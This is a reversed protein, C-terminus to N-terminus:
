KFYYNFGFNITTSSLLFDIGKETLSSTPKSDKVKSKLFSYGLLGVSAEIGIKSVPFWIAGGNIKATFGSLKKETKTTIKTAGDFSETTTKGFSPGANIGAFLGFNNNVMFFKRAFININVPKEITTTKSNLTGYDINKDSTVNLALGVAVKDTIFYGASPSFNFSSLKNIDTSTNGVKSSTSSSKFGFSGGAYFTGSTLQAQTASAICLVAAASLLFKKM